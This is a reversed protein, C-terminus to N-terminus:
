SACAPVTFVSPHEWFCPSRADLCFLLQMHFPSIDTYFHLLTTARSTCDLKHPVTWPVSNEAAGLNNCLVRFSHHFPLPLPCAVSSLSPLEQSCCLDSCINHDHQFNGSCHLPESHLHECLVWTHDFPSSLSKFFDYYGKLTFLFNKFEPSFFISDKDQLWELEWSEISRSVTRHTELATRACTKFYGQTIRIDSLLKPM